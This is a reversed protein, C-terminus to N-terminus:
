CTRACRHNDCMQPLTKHCDAAFVSFGLSLPFVPSHSVHTDLWPLRPKLLLRSMQVQRGVREPDAIARLHLQQAFRAAQCGPFPWRSVLSGDRGVGCGVTSRHRSRVGHLLQLLCTAICACKWRCLHFSHSRCEVVRIKSSMGCYAQAADQRSGPESHYSIPPQCRSSSHSIGSICM